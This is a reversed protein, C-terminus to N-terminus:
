SITLSNGIKLRSRNTFRPIMGYTMDFIAM